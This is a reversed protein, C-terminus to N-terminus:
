MALTFLVSMFAPLAASIRMSSVSGKLRPVTVYSRVESVYVELYRLFCEPAGSAARRQLIALRLMRWDARQFAPPSACQKARGSRARGACLSRM